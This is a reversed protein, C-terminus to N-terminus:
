VRTLNTKANFKLLISNDSKSPAQMSLNHFFERMADKSITKDGGLSYKLCSFIACLSTREHRWLQTKQVTWTSILNSSKVFSPVEGAPITDLNNVAPFRGFAFFFKNFTHMVEETNYEKKLNIFSYHNLSLDEEMKKIKKVPTKQLHHHFTDSINTYIIPYYDECITLNEVADNTVKIEEINNQSGNVGSLNLSKINSQYVELLRDIFYPWDKSQLAELM